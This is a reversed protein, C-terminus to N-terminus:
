WDFSRLPVSRGPGSLEHVNEGRWVIRARDAIKKPGSGTRRIYVVDMAAALLSQREARSLDPWVANLHEVSPLDVGRADRKAQELAESAEQVGTQRIKLGSKFSEMGLLKQLSLDDRYEALAAEANDFDAIAQTL